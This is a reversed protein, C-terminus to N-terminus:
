PKGAPAGIKAQDAEDIKAQVEAAHERGLKGRMEDLHRRAEPGSLTGKALDICIICM